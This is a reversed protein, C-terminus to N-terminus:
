VSLFFTQESMKFAYIVEFMWDVMRARAVETITHRTLHTTENTDLKEPNICKSMGFERELKRMKRDIDAGYEARFDYVM